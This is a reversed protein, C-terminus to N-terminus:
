GLRLFLVWLRRSPGRRSGAVLGLGFLYVSGVRLGRVVTHLIGLDERREIRLEDRWASAEFGIRASARVSRWSILSWVVEFYQPYMWDKGRFM